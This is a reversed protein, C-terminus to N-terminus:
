RPAGKSRLRELNFRVRRDEPRLAACREFLERARVMDRALYAETAEALLRDFLGESEAGVESVSIVEHCGSSAAEDPVGEEPLVAHTATALGLARRQGSEEPDFLGRLLVLTQLEDFPSADLVEGVTLRGDVLRLVAHEEVRRPARASAPDLVRRAGGLRVLEKHALYQKIHAISRAVEDSEPQERRVAVLLRLADEYRKERVLGAARARWPPEAASSSPSDSSDVVM